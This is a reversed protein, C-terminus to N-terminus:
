CPIHATLTTGKDPPSDIELRGGLAEVRDRLGLLGSGQAPDAGGTGDDRIMLRLNTGNVSLYVNVQTATAHKTVNTLAESVVYYAAVAPHEGPPRALDAHVDVPISSRRALANLASVLGGKSLIAPHIGRSIERLDDVVNTLDVKCKSLREKITDFGSPMDAALMRMELGLTILRQQTGDHLDREIRRRETDAAAVVRARSANLQAHSEANAIATSILATFDRMRNEVDEAQPERQTWFTATVGWLRGEVTVPVGVASNIGHAKAWDGIDGDVPGDTTMLASRGTRRVTETVNHGDVVWRSGVKLWTSPDSQSSWSGVVVVTDDPEYRRIAAHEANLLRGMEAASANFIVSPPSGQAVLTAVERLAAQEAVLRDLEDRGTELSYAMTNFSRELMGVEARGTEAMRVTLDGGALRRAMRSAHGMPRVVGRTLYGGFVVILLVSGGIGAVTVAVARRAAEGSRRDREFALGREFAVFQRFQGRLQDTRRKGEATVTPTRVSDPNERAAAVVPDSYDRIYSAGTRAIAAARQGQEVHHTAALSRLRTAQADFRARAATWPELFAEDGTSIFGREGTELDVVLRELDAAAALVRDSHRALGATNRLSSIAGLLGAFAGGILLSLLVSAVM